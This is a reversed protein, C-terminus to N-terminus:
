DARNDSTIWATNSLRANEISRSSASSASTMWNGSTRQIILNTGKRSTLSKSPSVQVKQSWSSPLSSSSFFSNASRSRSDSRAPTSIGYVSIKSSQSVSSSTS